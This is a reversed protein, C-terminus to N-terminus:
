HKIIHKDAEKVHIGAFVLVKDTFVGRNDLPSSTLRKKNIIGAKFAVNYGDKGFAPALYGIGTGSNDIIYTLYLVKFAVKGFKPV